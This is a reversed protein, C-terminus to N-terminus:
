QQNGEGADLRAQFAPATGSLVHRLEAVRRARVDPTLPVSRRLAPAEPPIETVSISDGKCRDASPICDLRL